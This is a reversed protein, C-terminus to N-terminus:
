NQKMNWCPKTAFVLSESESPVIVIAVFRSALHAKNSAMLQMVVARLFAQWHWFSQVLCWTSRGQSIVVCVIWSYSLFLLDLKITLSLGYVCLFHATQSSCIPRMPTPTCLLSRSMKTSYMRISSFFSIIHCLTLWYPLFFFTRSVNLNYCIITLTTLLYFIRTYTHQISAM